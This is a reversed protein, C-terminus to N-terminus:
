PSVERPFFDEGLTIRWFEIALDRNPAQVAKTAGEAWLEVAKHFAEWSARRWESESFIDRDEKCPPRLIQGYWAAAPVLAIAVLVQALCDAITGRFVHDPLEFLLCELHFSVADLRFQSRLHKLVKITPIFNGGTAESRNKWTLRRQHYRAYADGWGKGPRNICFPEMNTDTTGSKLVAPLIEVKIGLNVKICMSGAHFRVKGRYRADALLPAALIRFIEDHSYSKGTGASGPYSLNTLAVIDVDNITYIATDQKYSGQLFCGPWLEAASGRRDELLGKITGYESSAQREFSLSPNLRKFFHNFHGPLNFTAM